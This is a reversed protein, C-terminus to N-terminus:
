VPYIIETLVGVKKAHRITAWTGSRLENYPERPAALLIDSDGVIKRNRVLFPEGPLEENARTCARAANRGISNVGPRIIIYYGLQWAVTAFFEDAGICDGHVAIFRLAQKRYRELQQVIARKQFITLDDRTGTFGVVIKDTVRWATSSTPAWIMSM